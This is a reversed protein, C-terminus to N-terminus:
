ARSRSRSGETNPETRNRGGGRTPRGMAENDDASKTAPTAALKNEPAGSKRFTVDQRRVEAITGCGARKACKAETLSVDGPIRYEGPPLLETATSFPKTLKLIRKM